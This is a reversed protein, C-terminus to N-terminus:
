PPTELGGTAVVLLHLEHRGAPPRDARPPESGRNSDSAGALLLSCGFLALGLPAHVGSARRRTEHRGGRPPDLFIPIGGCAGWAM